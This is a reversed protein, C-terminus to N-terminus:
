KLQCMDITRSRLRRSPYDPTRHLLLPSIAMVRRKDRVDDINPNHLSPPYHPFSHDSRTILALPGNYRSPIPSLIILFLLNCQVPKSHPEKTFFSRFLKQISLAVNNLKLKGM